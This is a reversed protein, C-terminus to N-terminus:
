LKQVPIAVAVAVIVHVVITIGRTSKKKKLVFFLALFSILNKFSKNKCKIVTIFLVM